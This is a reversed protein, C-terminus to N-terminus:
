KFFNDLEPVFNETIKLTIAVGKSKLAHEVQRAKKIGSTNSKLYMLSIPIKLKALRSFNSDDYHDWNDSSLVTLSAPPFDLMSIYTQAPVCGGKYGVFHFKEHEVKYKEKVSKLFDNLGHHIPHSIWDSEGVPVKVVIIIANYSQHNNWLTSITEESLDDKSEVGAFSVITKYAKNSDFNAPLLMNYEFTINNFAKYTEFTNSESQFCSISLILASIIVIFIKM